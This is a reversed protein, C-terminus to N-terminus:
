KLLKGIAKDAAKNLAESAKQKGQEAKDALKQKGKEVAENGKKEIDAVGEQAKAKADAAAQKVAGEAAAKVAAPANKVIEAAAKADAVATQGKAIAPSALDVVDSKIAAKAQEATAAASTPLNAIGNVLSEITANGSALEKIQEANDDVFKKIASGYAKAEDLKGQEVLNKYITQLNALSSIAAKPDKSEVAKQLEATLNDATAQAEPSISLDQEEAMAGDSVVATDAGAANNQSKNGCSACTLALVAAFLFLKKMIYRCKDKLKM